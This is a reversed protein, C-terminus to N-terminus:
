GFQLTVQGVAASLSSDSLMLFPKWFRLFEFHLFCSFHVHVFIMDVIDRARPALCCSAALEYPATDNDDDDSDM